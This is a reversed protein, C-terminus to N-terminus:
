YIGATKVLILSASAHYQHTFRYKRELYVVFVYDGLAVYPVQRLNGLLRPNLELSSHRYVDIILKVIIGSKAETERIPRKNCLAFLVNQIVTM